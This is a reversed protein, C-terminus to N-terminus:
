YAPATRVFEKIVGDPQMTLLRDGALKYRFQMIQANAVPGTSTEDVRALLYDNKLKIRGSLYRSTGDSWLFHDNRIGLMEGNRSVWLGNIDPKKLGCFDTVCPKQRVPPYASQSQRQQQPQSRSQASQQAPPTLKALPSNAYAQAQPRGQQRAAQQAGNMNRASNQQTPANNQQQMSSTRADPNWPSTEWPENVWGETLDNYPSLWPSAYAYGPAYSDTPLVGWRPSGWIGNAALPSSWPSALWPSRLFPNDGYGGYASYPSLGRLALARRYPNSYYDSGSFASWPSGGYGYPSGYPLGYLGNSPLRDLIGMAVMMNLMMQIFPLNGDYQYYRVEARAGAATFLLLVALLLSRIFSQASAQIM